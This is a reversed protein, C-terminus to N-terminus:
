WVVSQSCSALPGSIFTPPMPLGPYLTEWNKAAQAAGKGCSAMGKQIQSVIGIEPNNTTDYLTTPISGYSTNFVPNSSDEIGPSKLNTGEIMADYAFSENEMATMMAFNLVSNSNSTTNNTSSTSTPVAGGMPNGYGDLYMALGPTQVPASGNYAASYFSPITPDPYVTIDPKNLEWEVRGNYWQGGNFGCEISNSNQDVSGVGTGEDNLYVCDLGSPDLLSLPSNMAYVYRNLSQPNFPDYSGDYPDPAMWRGQANSYQRFDAHDTATEKDTDLFAYHNADNDINTESVAPIPPVPPFTQKNDGFPQDAFTAEVAYNPSSSNYPGTPMTRMRETGLYNQHEFHIGAKATTDAATTYYALPKGKWYYSGQLQAHTAANWESVREGSADFVFDTTASGVVTRVRQNLANYVYTAPTGTNCNYVTLINGEADYTYYCNGDYTLNGATDYIYGGSNIRNNASSFSQSFTTGLTGTYSQTWRNGWRDYTWTFSPGTGSTISTSTLRNVADYGLSETIGGGTPGTDSLQTIRNGSWGAWNGYIVTNAEYLWGGAPRGLTDTNVAYYLADGYYTTTPGFPGNYTWAIIPSSTGNPGVTSSMSILEGAASLNYNSTTATSLPMSGDTSTHLNGGLDYTYYLQHNNATTGCPGSPLCQDLYQVRGVPDYSYATAASPVSAMSLRGKINAQTLDTFNAGAAKDYAFTKTPTVGDSYSISTVRGLTDYQTTTTATPRTRTVKLGPASYTYAYTTTGREPETVSTPRGLWDSQFSRSQSGQTVTTTPTALTYAYTTSYGSGAIDTNGNSNSCPAPAGSNTMTQSTVECVITPRGLGDVQSIRTVGNADVTETARGLYYVHSTENNARKVQTVRGLVDFTSTDGNQTSSVTTGNTISCAKSFGTPNIGDTSPYPYTTFEANGNIDYCTDTQYYTGTGNSNLVASSSSRGYGDLQAYIAAGVSNSQETLNQSIYTMTTVGGDAAPIQTPRLFPDAYLINSPLTNGNLDTSNTPLGTHSTEYGISGSLPVGTTPSPLAVGTKYSNTSDYSYTTQGGDPATVTAVNGTDYYTSSTTYYTGSAYYVNTSTLNGRNGTVAVHQPASTTTPAAGDYTNITEGALTHSGDYVTDQAVAEGGSGGSGLPYYLWNETRMPSSGRASTGFDYVDSESQNGYSDYKTTAGHTQLGDLTEYTDVQTIGNPISPAATCPLALQNYCTVRAVVPTGTASGNYIKRSIEIFSNGAWTVPGYFLYNLANGAGDVVGTDDIGSRSYTRTSASSGNDSNITRTLGAASGFSCNIGHNSGGTYTYTITNGTPLQVSTLRGTVDGSFGPTAEYGFLYKSGDPLDIESVLNQALPGYDNVLVGGNAVTCGFNTRVTYSTYKVTYTEQTGATNPYSLTTNAPAAGSVTLATQNLTDTYVGNNVTIENGNNDTTNPSGGYPFSSNPANMTVGVKNSVYGVPTNGPTIYMVYGSGDAAFATLTGTGGVPGPTVGCSNAMIYTYQIPFFHQTNTNPDTWYFTNYLMQYVYAYIHGQGNVCPQYVVPGIANYTINGTYMLSSGSLGSWGPIGNPTVPQWYNVGSVSVPQWVSTDYALNYVFNQGRGAKNLIPITLHVNLNGVNIVDFPGGDLTAFPPTGTAVQAFSVGSAALLAAV